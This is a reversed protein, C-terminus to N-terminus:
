NFSWFCQCTSLLQSEFSRLDWDRCVFFGSFWWFLSCLIVRQAINLDRKESIFSFIVTSTRETIETKLSPITKVINSNLCTSHVQPNFTQPISSISHRKQYTQQIQPYNFNFRLILSSQLKLQSYSLCLIVSFSVVLQIEWCCWDKSAYTDKVLDANWFICLRYPPVGPFM